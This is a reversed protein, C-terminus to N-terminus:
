SACRSGPYDASTRGIVTGDLVDLAAFLDHHWPTRLRHTMTGLRGKKLPLGAPDISLRSKARRRAFGRHRRGRISMSGVVDRLKDVFDSRELAQIASLPESFGHAKWIRRVASASIGSATGDIPPEIPAEVASRCADAGWARAVEPGLPPIRAADQRAPPHRGESGDQLASATRSAPGACSRMRASVTASCYDGGGAHKELTRDEHDNLDAM